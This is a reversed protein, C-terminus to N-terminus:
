RTKRVSARDGGAYFESSSFPLKATTVFRVFRNGYPRLAFVSTSLTIWCCAGTYLMRFCRTSTLCFM